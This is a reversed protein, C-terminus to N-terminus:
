RPNSNDFTRTIALWRYYKRNFYYWPLIRPKITRKDQKASTSGVSQIFFVTSWSTIIVIAKWTWLWFPGHGLPGCFAPSLVTIWLHGKIDRLLHIVYYFVKVIIVSCKTSTSMQWSYKFLMTILLFEAPGNPLGDELQLISLHLEISLTRTMWSVSVLMTMFLIQLTTHLSLTHTMRSGAFKQEWSNIIQWMKWAPSVLLGRARGPLPNSYPRRLIVSKHKCTCPRIWVSSPM